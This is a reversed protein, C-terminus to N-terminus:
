RGEAGNFYGNDNVDGDYYASWGEAGWNPPRPSRYTAWEPTGQVRDLFKQYEHVLKDKAQDDLPPYKARMRKYKNQGM